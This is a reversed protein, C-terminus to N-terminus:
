SFSNINIGKKKKKKIVTEKFVCHVPMPEIPEDGTNNVGIVSANGTDAVSTFNGIAPLPKIDGTDVVSTLFADGNNNIGTVDKLQRV